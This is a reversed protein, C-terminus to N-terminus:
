MTNIPYSHHRYFFLLYEYKIQNIMRETKKKKKAKGGNFQQLLDRRRAVLVKASEGENAEFGNSSISEIGGSFPYGGLVAQQCLYDLARFDKAMNSSNFSKARVISTAITRAFPSDYDFAMDNIDLKKKKSKSLSFLLMQVYNDQIRGLSHITTTAKNDEDMESGNAGDDKDIEDITAKPITEEMESDSDSYSGSNGDSDSSGSSSSSSSVIDADGYYNTTTVSRNLPTDSSEMKISIDGNGGNGNDQQQPAKQKDFLKKSLKKKRVIPVYDPKYPKRKPTKGHEQQLLPTYMFKGGDCYKSDNISYETKVPAFEPPVFSPGEAKEESFLHLSAAPNFDNEEKPASVELTTVSTNAPPDSISNNHNQPTEDLMTSLEKIDMMGDDNLLGDSQNLVDSYDQELKPANLEAVNTSSILMSPPKSIFTDQEPVVAAPEPPPPAPTPGSEFFDFDEETVGFDFNDIDNMGDDIWRSDSMDMMMTDMGNSGGLSEMGFADLDM